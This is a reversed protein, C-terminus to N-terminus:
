TFSYPDVDWELRLRNGALAHAMTLLPKLCRHLRGPILEKILVQWRYRNRLKFLPSQAPGLFQVEESM